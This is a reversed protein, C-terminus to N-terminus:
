KFKLKKKPMPSILKYKGKQWAGIGSDYWKSFRRDSPGGLLCTHLEHKDMETVMRLSPMFTSQRGDRRYIQGQHITARGGIATVPGKDFGLFDPTTGNFFINKLTIQQVQGWKKPTLKLARLAAAQFVQERTKGDFWLSEPQILVQDFNRYFDVFTGSEQALYKVIQEGLGNVAFIDHYLCKLFMEFLYAGRSQADYQYDWEKLIHGQHTDPLLPKLVKMFLEAQISYVDFQFKYMDTSSHKHSGKLLDHIREARYSGMAMNIPKVTGYHNLDNNATALYGEPPNTCSPLLHPPYFGQWSNSEDWGALPVFGSIGKKRIPVLGSMQFGIDGHSDAMVFSWGTEIKRVKEMAKAVTDVQWMNIAASIGAAGADNAAWLTALYFGDTNPDGDLLGHDNEYCDLTVSPNKKRRIVEVRRNFDHWTQQISRLYRGGQCQEVWSDISDIFAYTVGWSVDNNRGTLIGPIGPLSAGMMYRDNGILVAEYWVNPLRNAELHPDNALLPKGSLTKKGSLVWNNSAMMRPIAQNWLSAPKVIREGLTVKNIMEIDLGELIGPFLEDLKEKSINAQVMEVFLREIEGQSQALTLYGLMRSILLCDKPKWPDPRYGLLKFEWPYSKALAANVGQCYADIAAHDEVNLKDLEKHVNKSWNMRRFFKDISLGEEDDNLLECVRGQGLVRMLCMQMLRDTGHAFGQGWYLDSLSQAQIHAVGNRDRFVNVGAKMNKLYDRKYQSTLTSLNQKLVLCQRVCFLRMYIM